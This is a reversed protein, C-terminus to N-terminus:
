LVINILRNKVYILKKPEKGELYKQVIKDELVIKKVKEEDEDAGIIM